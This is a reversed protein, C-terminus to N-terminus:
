CARAAIDTRNHEHDMAFTGVTGVHVGYHFQNFAGQLSPNECVQPGVPIVTDGIKVFHRHPPVDPAPGQADAIAAYGVLATASALALAIRQAHM